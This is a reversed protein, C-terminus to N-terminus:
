DKCSSHYVVGSKDGTPIPEKLKSLVDIVTHPAKYAVGIRTGCVRRGIKESLGQYYSLVCHGLMDPEKWEVWKPERLTPLIGKSSRNNLLWCELLKSFPKDSCGM